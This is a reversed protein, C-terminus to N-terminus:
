IPYRVRSSLAPRYVLALYTLHSDRGTGNLMVTAVEDRIQISKLRNEAAWKYHWVGIAIAGDDLRGSSSSVRHRQAITGVADLAREGSM